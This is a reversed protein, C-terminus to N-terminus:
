EDLIEVVKENVYDALEDELEYMEAQVGNLEDQLKSIEAAHKKKDKQEARMKEQTVTTYTTKTKAYVTTLIIEINSRPITTTIEFAKPEPVPEVITLCIAFTGAALIVLAVIFRFLDAMFLKKVYKPDRIRFILPQLIYHSMIYFTHYFSCLRYISSVHLYIYDSGLKM